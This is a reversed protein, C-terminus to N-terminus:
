VAESIAHRSKLLRRDLFYGALCIPGSIEDRPFILFSGSPNVSRYRVTDWGPFRVLLHVASLKIRGCPGPEKRVGECDLYKRVM